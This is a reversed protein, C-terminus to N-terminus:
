FGLPGTPFPLSPTPAQQQRRVEARLDEVEAEERLSSFVVQVRAQQAQPLGEQRLTGIQRAFEVTDAPVLGVSEVLLLALQTDFPGAVEGPRMGFAAGIAEPAGRLAPTPTLRTFPGVTQPTLNHRRAAEGLTAGDAVEQLLAAALSRAAEWQLERKASRTVEDRIEELPPAAEPLLSDLRFLYYAWDTEIIQSTQGPTAEFAWLHIDPIVFRGLQLRDGEYLRGTPALPLDMRIAVSDLATPDDQDAALMDLSDARLDVEELHDGYLELPILIHSAHYSTDGKSELRIVHYGFRTLVPQSLQGPRLALAAEEFPPVFAGLNVEGLDGGTERNASDASERAAVAAFDTGDLIEQRVAQARTLAAASDSADPRRSTAVFSMFAQAPREFEDRHDRYYRRLDDDTVEVQEEDVATQPIIAVVNATASDNQDRFMRWLRADSLYVDETVRELLKIRPLEERYRAELALAFNPDVGSRLYRQYKELDFQGETQFEPVQQLEPLPANLLLQRIEEDSVTIGRRMYEENLLIQQILQELVQDELARQEELTTFTPAGALRQQEQANRVAAYFTQLDIARGNVVAVESATAGSSQGTVDMGVEFVMWGVFSVAVILMIWPAIARMTRMM